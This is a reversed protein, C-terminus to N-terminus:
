LRLEVGAAREADMATALKIWKCGQVAHGEENCYACKKVGAKRNIKAAPEKKPKPESAKKQRKKTAEERLEVL